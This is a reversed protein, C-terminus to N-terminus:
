ESVRTAHSAIVIWRGERLVLVDTFRLTVSQPQPGIAAATTRGTVIATDGYCRVRVQDFAMRVAPGTRCMELAEAKTIVQGDIHTVAWDDALLAGWGACDRNMWTSALQDEIDLLLRTAAADGSAHLM